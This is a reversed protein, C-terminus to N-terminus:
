RARAREQEELEALAEAVAADDADDVAAEIAIRLQPQVSSRGTARLRVADSPDEISSALAVAAGARALPSASADEALSWIQERSLAATRFSTGAGARRLARVWELATRGNPELLASLPAGSGSRWVALAETVRNSAALVDDDGPVGLIVKERKGSRHVLEIGAVKTKGRREEFARATVLEAFPFFRKSALWRIEVGDVGIAFRSPICAALVFPIILALTVALLSHSGRQALVGGAALGVTGCLVAVTPVATSRLVLSRAPFAVSREHPAFDLADVLRRAEEFTRTVLDLPPRAGALSVRVFPPSGPVVVARQIRTRPILAEGEIQIGAEGVTVATKRRRAWLWSKLRQAAVATGLAGSALLIGGADKGVRFAVLLSLTGIIQGM